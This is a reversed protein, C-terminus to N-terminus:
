LKDNKEATNRKALFALVKKIYGTQQWRRYQSQVAIWPQFESPLSRWACGSSFHYLIAKLIQKHSRQSKSGTNKKAAPLFVLLEDLVDDPICIEDRNYGLFARWCITHPSTPDYGIRLSLSSVLKVIGAMEGAERLDKEVQAPHLPGGYKNSFVFPSHKKIGAIIEKFIYPPVPMTVLSTSNMTTRCFNIMSSDQILDNRQLRLVEELTIFGGVVALEGNCYWLLQAILLKAQKSDKPM